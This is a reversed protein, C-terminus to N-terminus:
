PRPPPAPPLGSRSGTRGTRPAFAEQMAQEIRYQEREFFQRWQPEQEVLLAARIHGLATSDAVGLLKASRASGRLSALHRGDRGLAREYHRIADQSWG